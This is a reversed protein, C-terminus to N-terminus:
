DNKGGGTIDMYFDELEQGKLFIESVAIDSQVLMKTIEASDEIQQTVSIHGNSLVKSEIGSNKLVECARETDPTVIEISNSCKLNLEEASLEMLLQGNHIIGYHTAIKSLEELIHSSILITIGKETNLRHITERVEVIGQPDLGNIPEDLIMLEPDGILAIAIGLRQKMGLSFNKAKKKGVNGLGVTELLSGIFKDDSKGASLCKMKLNQFATMDPYLGPAEILCGVKGRVKYLEETGFLSFTGSSQNSLGSVIKMLTTKGAGNRGIFGYVAGKEIHISVNDVAKKRGFSKTLGNTELIFESM